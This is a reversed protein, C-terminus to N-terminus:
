PENKEARRFDRCTDTAEVKQKHFACWQMFPNVVYHECQRCFAPADEEGFIEVEAPRDDDSFIEPGSREVSEVSEEGSFVHGCLTCSLEEGVRTFGEYLPKKLLLTERGCAPCRVEINKKESKMRTASKRPM